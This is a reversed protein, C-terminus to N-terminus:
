ESVSNIYDLISRIQTDTLDPHANMLTQNYKLWLERAYKDEKIIAESNRIFNYLKKKDPWRSEVGKLAPGSLDNNVKHCSACKAYFLLKGAEISASSNKKDPIVTNEVSPSSCAILCIVFFLMIVYQFNM